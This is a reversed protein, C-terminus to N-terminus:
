PMGYCMRTGNKACRRHGSMSLVKSILNKLIPNTSCWINRAHKEGYRSGRIERKPLRKPLMWSAVLENEDFDISADQYRWTSVKGLDKKEDPEGMVRIVEDKPSGLTFVSIPKAIHTEITSEPMYNEVLQYCREKTIRAQTSIYQLDEMTGGEFEQSESKATNDRYSVWERQEERLQNFENSSVQTKLVGYIENLANDWRKFTESEAETMELTGGNEYLYDLDALGMEINDLIRLYELKLNSAVNNQGVKSTSTGSDDTDQQELVSSEEVGQEFNFEQEVESFQNEEITKETQFPEYIAGGNKTGNLITFVSILLLFSALVIAFAKWNFNIVFTPKRINSTDKIQESSPSSKIDYNYKNRYLEYKEDYIRKKQENSLVDYAEKLQKFVEPDGGTDPHATKAKTRYAKKIDESTCVPSLGLILYYDIFGDFCGLIQFPNGYPSFEEKFIQQYIWGSIRLQATQFLVLTLLNLYEDHEELHLNKQQWEEIQPLYLFTYEHFLINIQEKIESQQSNQFLLVLRSNLENRAETSEWFNNLLTQDHKLFWSTIKPVSDIGKYRPIAM